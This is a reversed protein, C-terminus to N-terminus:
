TTTLNGQVGDWLYVLETTELNDPEIITISIRVLDVGAIQVTSTVNAFDNMFALDSKVADEILQRGQSNLAVTNLTNETLSNFWRDQQTASIVKNGWWDFAQESEPRDDTTPFSPNGGFMALYVMNQWGFATKVDRGFLVMDGGNGTETIFIDVVAM